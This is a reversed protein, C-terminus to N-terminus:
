EPIYIQDVTPIFRTKDQEGAYPGQKVEIIESDELMEFGHGGHALLLVDGTCLIRSQLYKKDENYFDVRIKGSKIFLVEKTYQVERKVPNHVHPSIVYGSPRSMYALQQSFDDPTFFQIGEAHYNSRIIYALIKNLEEIIIFM